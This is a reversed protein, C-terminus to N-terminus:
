RVVGFDQYVMGTSGQKQLAEFTKFFTATKELYPSLGIKESLLVMALQIPDIQVPYYSLVLEHRSSLKMSTAIDDLVDDMGGLKDVLKLDMAQRGTYARGKAIKEVEAPTLKRGEAVRSIFADYINDLSEEFIKQESASFPKNMSFMGANQGFSVGDWHVGIKPWVNELNLKGGVVGISGTLTSPEAYIKDAATAIWYGGSAAVTGMSVYIPKKYEKKAWILTNRITESATPSGGPSNVRVIIAKVGRNKAAERIADAIDDAGAMDAGAPSGGSSGSVIMGDVPIIAISSIKGKRADMFKEVDPMSLAYHYRKMTVWRSSAYKKQLTNVLEDGTGVHDVLGVEKASKDTYFGKDILPQIDKKDKFRNFKIPSVLQDVMDGLLSETSERSAASMSTATMNEMANKYEKRQFFQAKVGIKDLADKLFPMEMQLGAIAISGVPQLWIEDFHSAFSYLGFGFGGEGYSESYIYTKKGNAKFGEIAGEIAQLQSLNYGGGKAEVVLAKVRPDTAARDISDVIDQVSLPANEKQLYSLIQSFGNSEPLMGSMEFSLVMDRSLSPTTAREFRFATIVAMIIGVLVLLGIALAMAKLIRWFFNAITGIMGMVSLSKKKETQSKIQTASQYIITRGRLWNQPAM